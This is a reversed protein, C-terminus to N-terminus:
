QRLQQWNLLQTNTVITGVKVPLQVTDYEVQLRSIMVLVLITKVSVWAKKVHCSKVVAMAAQVNTVPIFKAYDLV